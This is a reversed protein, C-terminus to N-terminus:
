KRFWHQLNSFIATMCALGTTLLLMVAKFAYEHKEVKDETKMALCEVDDVRKNIVSELDALKGMVRTEFQDLKEEMRVLAREERLAQDRIHEHLFDLEGQPGTIELM